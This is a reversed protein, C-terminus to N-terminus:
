WAGFAIKALSKQEVTRRGARRKSGRPDFQRDIITLVLSTM